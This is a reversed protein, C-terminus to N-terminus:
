TTPNCGRVAQQYRQLARVLRTHSHLDDILVYLLPSTPDVDVSYSGGNVNLSLTAM